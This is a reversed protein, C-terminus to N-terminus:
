NVPIGSTVANNVRGDEDLVFAVLRDDPREPILNGTWTASEGPALTGLPAGDIEEQLFGLFIDNHVYTESGGTQPAQVGSRTRAVCLRYTGEAAATVKVSVSIGDNTEEPTIVLACSAKRLAKCADIKALLLDKSTATTLTSADLDVVASPYAQVGFKAILAKGDDCVFDDQFHICLPIIEGPREAMAEEIAEHMRPCNVCWTATFDLVVSAGDNVVEETPTEPTPEDTEDEKQGVCALAAFALTSLLAIRRLIVM